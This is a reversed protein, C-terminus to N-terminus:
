ESFLQIMQRTFTQVYLDHTLAKDGGTVRKELETGSMSTALRRESPESFQPLVLTIPGPGLADGMLSALQTLCTM